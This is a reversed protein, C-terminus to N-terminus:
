AGFYASQEPFAGAEAVSGLTRRTAEPTPEHMSHVREYSETGLGYGTHVVMHDAVRIGEDRLSAPRYENM